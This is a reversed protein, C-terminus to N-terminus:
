QVKEKVVTLDMFDEKVQWNQLRSQQLIERLEDVTYSSRISNWWHVRFDIPISLSIIKVFMWPWWHQLRKSDHVICKGDAKLVRAIEDFVARPNEWHHLSDNSIILDFEGDAFPMAKVDGERWTLSGNLGAKAANEAALGLMALSMDMGVVQWETGKLLKAVEIAVFGPGTGMDLAKGCRPIGMAVAQRALQQYGERRFRNNGMFENFQRADAVEGIVEVEPIREM